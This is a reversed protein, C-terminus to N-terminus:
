AYIGKTSPSMRGKEYLWRSTLSVSPGRVPSPTSPTFSSSSDNITRSMALPSPSGYSLRRTVDNGLAKQFMPSPSPSYSTPSRITGSPSSGSYPSPSGSKSSTRSGPTKSYRPPTIYTSGPSAARTAPPLGLLSRQTPTLPIDSLDDKGRFLPLMALAINLWPIIRCLLFAYSTYPTLATLM